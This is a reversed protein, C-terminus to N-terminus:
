KIQFSLVTLQKEDDELSESFLRNNGNIGTFDRRQTNFEHMSQM